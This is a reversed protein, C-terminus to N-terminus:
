PRRAETPVDILAFRESPYLYDEGTEDVIRLYSSRMAPDDPLLHYVTGVNLDEPYGTNDICIAFRRQRSEVEM